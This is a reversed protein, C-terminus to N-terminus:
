EEIFVNRRLLEATRRKHPKKTELITQFKKLVDAFTTFHHFTINHKECYQVLSDKAFIIDAYKTPCKDSHGDGIYVIVQDDSTQTLIHNRKCNACYTCDSDTFPFHPIAKGEPTIELQNTYRQLHSLQERELIPNIYKDFGDSVITLPINKEKCYHVFTHFSTDIKQQLVFEQIAKETIHPISKWGRTWCEKASINGNRYEEFANECIELNAFHRFLEDGIDSITITGDFDTFVRYSSTNM